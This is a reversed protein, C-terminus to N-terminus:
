SADSASPLRVRVITGRGKESELEIDGGHHSVIQHSITLGLGRGEGTKTTYFPDFAREIREPGMGCGDDEVTVYIDDAVQVTSVRITGRAEIAEAANQIVNLFVQQLDQPTGRVLRINGLITEVRGRREVQPSAVRLVSELIENVSVSEDASSGGDALRRVDRVIAATRDAGELSEDLIEFGEELLEEAEEGAERLRAGLESWRERLQSLNSRVFAIPNNIEHAIGAALEGLAALRGSVVLRRRLGVVERLDRVSLVWAAGSGREEVLLAVSVSVAIRQGADRVLECELNELERLEGEDLAPLIDSVHRGELDQASCGVLRAMGAKAIRIRGDLHLLSVGERLGELMEREFFGPALIPFRYRYFIWAYAGGLLALSATALRPVEVGWLPLLNDTLSGVVVPVCIAACLFVVQERDSKAPATLFVRLLVVLGAVICSVLYAFLMTQGFAHGHSWGWDHRIVTGDHVLDTTLDTLVFGLPIAYLLPLARRLRIAPHRTVTLCLHLTLTGLFAWGPSAIKVIWLSTEPTAAANWLVECGAWWGVALAVAAALHNATRRPDRAFIVAAFATSVVCSVLPIVLYWNM